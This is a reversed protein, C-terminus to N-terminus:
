VFRKTSTLDVTPSQIFDFVVTLFLINPPKFPYDVPFLIRGHYRGGEFASEV